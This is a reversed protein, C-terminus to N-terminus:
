EEKRRGAQEWIARAQPRHREDVVHAFLGACRAVLAFGRVEDPPYGLDSLIAAIAGAANVILDKGRRQVGLRVLDLAEVHVGSLGTEGALSLLARVRPDERQHLNHGLGPVRWGRGLLAEVQGEVASPLDARGRAAEAVVRQLLEAAEEIVGLFRSGVALLGAAVAGQMFEPDGDLVLRASLTSPTLGHEMMAVLVADVLRVHAPPPVEGRLDLLMMETFSLRPILDALDHGRVLISDGRQGALPESKM